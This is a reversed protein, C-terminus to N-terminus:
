YGEGGVAAAGEAWRKLDEGQVVFQTELAPGVEEFVGVAAPGYYTEWSDYYSQGSGRWKGKRDWEGIETVISVHEALVGSHYSSWAM